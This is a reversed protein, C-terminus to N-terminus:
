LKGPDCAHPLVFSTWAASSKRGKTCHQHTCKSLEEPLKLLLVLACCYARALFSHQANGRSESHSLALTSSYNALDTM